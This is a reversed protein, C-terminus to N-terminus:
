KLLCKYAAQFADTDVEDIVFNRGNYEIRDGPEPAARPTVLNAIMVLVNGKVRQRSERSFFQKTSLTGQFTHASKTTDIVKGPNNPDSRREIKTLTGQPLGGAQRWANAIIQAGDIGAIINGM